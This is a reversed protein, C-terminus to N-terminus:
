RAYNDPLDNEILVVTNRDATAKLRDLAERFSRVVRIKEEPCGAERAGAALPVSRQEGVFILEDCVAAAAAGLARNCAEEREGLEVLGPTVIVHRMGEFRGLVEVAALSGEPNANYADDILLAHNVFPKLELRHAVPTLAAVAAKIEADSLGLQLAVATAAAINTVAHAGLLKTRVPIVRDGARLTFSSGHRDVAIDEARVDAEPRRGVTVCPIERSKERILDNDTNLVVTGGAALVADALEFKTKVVNELSGFTNLHQPGVSTIIGLTPKAIACIEAIDGVRKAGMECVFIETTPTLHERVTRVVGLPTNFSGPTILTDYKESLLRGLIYKTSTKGYSGTVGIVTLRPHDALRRKADRVFHAAVAKELPRNLANVLLALLPTLWWLVALLTATWNGVPGFVTWACLAALLIGATVYLRGVRATVVLPKIAKQQRRRIDWGRMLGLLLAAAPLLWGNLPRWWVLLVCLAAGLAGLVTRASFAGRLYDAYRRNFYSNQQLMHWQATLAYCAGAALLVAAVTVPVPAM